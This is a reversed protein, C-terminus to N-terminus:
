LSLSAAKQTAAQLTLTAWPEGLAALQQPTWVNIVPAPPVANMVTIAANMRLGVIANAAVIVPQIATMVASPSVAPTYSLLLMNASTCGAPSFSADSLQGDNDPIVIMHLNGTATEISVRAKTAAM